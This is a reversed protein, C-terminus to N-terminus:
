NRTGVRGDPRRFGQFTEPVEGPLLGGDPRAEFAFAYDRSFDHIAVNHEHVWPGPAIQTSAFGIIQGFKRIPEGEAISSLAIKHGKGVTGRALVGDQLTDGNSVRGIAIVVNDADNLRLIRPTAM